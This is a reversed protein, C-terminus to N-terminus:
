WSARRPSIWVCFSHLTFYDHGNWYVDGLPRPAAHDKESVLRHGLPDDYWTRIRM